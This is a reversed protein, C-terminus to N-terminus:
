PSIASVDKAALVELCELDYLNTTQEGEDALM